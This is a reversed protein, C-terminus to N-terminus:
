CCAGARCRSGSPSGSARGPLGLSKIVGIKWSKKSKKGNEGPSKATSGPNRADLRQFHAFSPSFHTFFPYFVLNRPKLLCGQRMSRRVQPNDRGPERDELADGREDLAEDGRDDFAEGRDEFAVGRDEFDDFAWTIGAGECTKSRIEGMKGGNKRTKQANEGDRRPPELSGWAPAWPWSVAPLPVM